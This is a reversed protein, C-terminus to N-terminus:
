FPAPAAAFVLMTSSTCTRAALSSDVQWPGTPGSRIYHRGAWEQRSSDQYICCVCLRMQKSCYQSRRLVSFSAM